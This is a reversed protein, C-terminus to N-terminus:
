AKIQRLQYDHILKNLNLDELSNAVENTKTSKIQPSEHSILNHYTTLIDNVQTTPSSFAARVWPLFAKSPAAGNHGLRGWFGSDLIFRSDKVKSISELFPALQTRTHSFDGSSQVYIVTNPRLASYWDCLNLCIKESLQENSNLSSWCNLRYRTSAVSSYAIVNTQPVAAIAVSEKIFSSYFLSAFGGASGGLFVVRDFNGLEVIKCFPESLIKQSEFGEHGAYWSATHTKDILMSPDSVSLQTVKRLGSVFIPFYPIAYKGRNIAGHFIILLEKSNPVRRLKVPVEGGSLKIFVQSDGIESNLLKYVENEVHKM